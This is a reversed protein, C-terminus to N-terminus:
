GSAVIKFGLVESLDKIEKTYDGYVMALHSGFDQLKEFIDRADKVVIDVGFSCSISDMGFGDIIEGKTLFMSTGAPNFRGLTVVTGADRKFDYRLTAGWGDNAFNMIEFPLPDQDFGKMKLGPVDHLVTLLNNEVDFAPNGFYASKKSVYMLAMMALLAHVDTQCVSPYGNDKLLSHIMCPTFKYKDAMELPCIERCEITFANCDYQSMLNRVAKYAIVSKLLYQETMQIKTAKNRLFDTIKQAKELESQDGNIREIESGLTQNSAHHYEIGYMNNLSEFDYIVSEMGYPPKGFRDTFILLRTHAFAKKVWLLSIIRNMDEWDLSLYSELDWHRTAATMDVLWGGDTGR